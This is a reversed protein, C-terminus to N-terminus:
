VTYGGESSDSPVRVRTEPRTVRPPSRSRPPSVEAPELTVDMRFSSFALGKFSNDPSFMRIRFRHSTKPRSPPSPSVDRGLPPQTGPESWNEFVPFTSRASTTKVRRRKFTTLWLSEEFIWGM